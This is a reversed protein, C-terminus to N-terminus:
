FISVCTQHMNTTTPYLNSSIVEEYTPPPLYLSANDGDSLVVGTTLDSYNCLEFKKLLFNNLMILM